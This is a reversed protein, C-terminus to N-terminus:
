APPPQAQRLREHADAVLGECVERLVELMALAAPPRYAGAPLAARVRRFLGKAELPRVAVGARATPLTMAPLLAVGVGAAVLGEVAVRDDTRFAINPEFGALACARPLVQLTSGQRVGQIWREGALDTLRVRDRRALPHDAPLGIHLPDDLLAVQEVDPSLPPELEFEYVLALELERARLRPICEDPDGQLLQLEIDPCRQQFAAIARPMLTAGATAFWGLRLLGARLGALAQLELEAAALRGLIEDAEKALLRGPETLTVGRPGREVLTAGAERELVAIQQSIASPTYSLARAAATFSGHEAVERLVKLRQVDLM